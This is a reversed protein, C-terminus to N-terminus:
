EGNSETNRVNLESLVVLKAVLVALYFQGIIAQFVSMTKAFSSNPTVDGFGLTTMTVFSYYILDPFSKEGFTSLAAIGSSSFNIAQEDVLILTGYMYAFSIGILMYVCIAARISEAGVSKCFFLPKLINAGCRFFFAAILVNHTIFLWKSPIALIIWNLAVAASALFLTVKINKTECCDTVALLLLVITMMSCFVLCGVFSNPLLPTGIFLLLLTILAFVYRHRLLVQKNLAWGEDKFFHDTLHSFCLRFRDGNVHLLEAAFLRTKKLDHNLEATLFNFAFDFTAFNDM